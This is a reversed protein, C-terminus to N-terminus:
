PTAEVELVAIQLYAKLSERACPSLESLLKPDYLFCRRLSKPIGFTFHRHPVSKLVEECLWEGFEV